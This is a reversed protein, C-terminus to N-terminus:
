KANRTDSRRCVFVAQVRCTRSRTPPVTIELVAGDPDEFYMSRQRGHAEEWFNIKAPRLKKRWPRLATVSQEAFALHRVERPLGDSRRSDRQRRRVRQRTVKATLILALARSSEARCSSINTAFQGDKSGANSSKARARPM